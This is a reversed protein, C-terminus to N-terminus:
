IIQLFKLGLITFMLGLGLACIFERMRQLQANQYDEFTKYNKLNINKIKM